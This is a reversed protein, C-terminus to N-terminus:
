ARDTPPCLAQPHPRVRDDARTMTKHLRRLGAVINSADEHWAAANHPQGLLYLVRPVSDANRLRWRLSKQKRETRALNAVPSGSAPEPDQPIGSAVVTDETGIFAVSLADPGTQLGNMKSASAQLRLPM